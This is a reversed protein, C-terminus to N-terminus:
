HAVIALSTILLPGYVIPTVQSHSQLHVMHRSLQSLNIQVKDAGSVWGVGGPWGGGINRM